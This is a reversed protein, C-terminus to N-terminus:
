VSINDLDSYISNQSIFEPVIKKMQSVMDRNNHSNSLDLLSNIEKDIEEFSYSRTKAIHIKKHYTPLTNESDNLLEEYLKEGPRLGTFIIEIDKDVELGALQIMNKALDYLKVPRGMDFIYIEGGKGISGAELVLQVAESITMFYRTIEPHTVTIPGGHEIQKTFRPVVSGNSGLVNGFRSTVFQTSNNRKLNQYENLAQVYIEAIRKSAGMVNTPNVAKDTSIMVFKEINYAISLDAINKTGLINTKIAEYPNNEMLPVHKYAAAHFIVEPKFTEFLKKMRVNNRVDGVVIEIDAAINHDEMYLQSEHLASEAIDCLILLKPQFGAVQMAIEFGISGAAGTVLVVKDKLYKSISTNDIQITERQLLDEINLNKLDASKLSSNSLWDQAPPITIIGVKYKLALDVLIKKVRSNLHENTILVKVKPHKKQVKALETIHYVRLQEIYKNIKEDDIFGIIEYPSDEISELAAKIMIANLDSGHILIPKNGQNKDSKFYSVFVGKAFIRLFILISSSIFFSLAILMSLYNIDNDTFLRLLVFVILVSFHAFINSKIIRVFDTFNSYRLLGTHLRYRLYWAISLTLYISLHIFQPDNLLSKYQFKIFFLYSLYFSVIYIITDAVLIMWRPLVIDKLSKM